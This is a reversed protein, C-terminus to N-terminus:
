VQAECVLLVLSEAADLEGETGGFMRVDAKTWLVDRAAPYVRRQAKIKPSIYPTYIYIFRQTGGRGCAVEGASLGGRSRCIYIHM